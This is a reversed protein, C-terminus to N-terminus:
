RIMALGLRKGTAVEVKELGVSGLCFRRFWGLGGAM